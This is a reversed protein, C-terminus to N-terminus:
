HNVMKKALSDMNIDKYDNKQNELLRQKITIGVINEMYITSNDTDVFYVTPTDMGAKRCKQLNRAEQIVRKTTLQQNLDPHRYTKKFREKAICGTPLSLFTSLRLVKAEAGQKILVANDPIM